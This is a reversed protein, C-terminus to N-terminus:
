LYQLCLSKLLKTNKFYSKTVASVERNEVTFIVRTEIGYRKTHLLFIEVPPIWLSYFCSCDKLFSSSQGTKEM